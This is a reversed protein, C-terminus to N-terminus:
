KVLRRKQLLVGAIVAIIALVVVAVAAFTNFSGTLTSEEKNNPTSVANDNNDSTAFTQSPTVKSPSVTLSSSSSSSDKKNNNDDNNTPNTQTWQATYTIDSTVTNTITPSWGTFTYDSNDTPTGSFDPTNTGYSLDTYTQPTFADQTGPAYTVTYTNETWQAILAVNEKPMTFTKDDKHIVETNYLWNTFTYGAKTPIGSLVAVTDGTHYANTDVPADSGGNADYTVIFTSAVADGTNKATYYVTFVNGTANLVGSLSPSAPNVVTYGAIDLAKITVEIGIKDIVVEDLAVRETTDELYYHIVYWTTHENIRLYYFTFVNGEEDLTATVPRPDVASYGEFEDPVLSVVGGVKGEVTKTEAISFETEWLYYRVVYSTDVLQWNATLVVDGITGEPISYSIQGAVVNGDAFEVTWGLFEYGSKTPDFIALPLGDVTYLSPNDFDDVEGDLVYEINYEAFVGQDWIATLVLDGYTGELVSFEVPVVVVSGNACEVSWGDFVYVGFADPIELALDEGSYVVPAGLVFGDGLVYEISYEAFVGEDWIATLTVDGHAGVPISYGVGVFVPQEDFYVVDWGLFEYVGFADPIEPLIANYTNPAGEPLSGGNLVYFINYSTVTVNSIPFFGTNVDNVYSIGSHVNNNHWNVTSGVPSVILNTNSGETYEFHPGTSPHNWAVVVSPDNITPTGGSSMRIVNNTGSIATGYAFVFGSNITVIADAGSTYIANGSTASVTGGTVEVISSEGTTRIAYGSTTTWVTGGTVYVSAYTVTTPNTTASSIATGGTGTAYVEGGNITATSKPGVLNIARGNTTTTYVKGGSVIVNGYTQIGYGVVNGTADVYLSDATSAVSGSYVFVNDGTNEDNNMNIVPYLNSKEDGLVSGRDVIVITNSGTGLIASGNNAQVVGSNASSDGTVVVKAGVANITSGRGTNYLWGGPGVEFTGEGSFSILSPSAMACYWAGWRLTIGSDINLVLTSFVSDPEYIFGEVNVINPDSSDVSATLGPIANIQDVLSDVAPNEGKVLTITPIITIILIIGVLITLLKTTNKM